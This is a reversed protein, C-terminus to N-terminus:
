QKTPTRHDAIIEHTLKGLIRAAGDPGYLDVLRPLIEVMAAALFSHRPVGQAECGDLVQSIAIRAESFRPPPEIEAPVFYPLKPGGTEM